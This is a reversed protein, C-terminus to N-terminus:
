MTSVRRRGPQLGIEALKKQQKLRVLADHPFTPGPKQVSRQWIPTPVDEM